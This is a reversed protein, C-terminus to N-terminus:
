YKREEKQLTLLASGKKLATDRVVNWGDGLRQAVFM